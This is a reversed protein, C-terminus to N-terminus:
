LTITYTFSLDSFRGFGDRLERSSPFVDLAPKDHSAFFDDIVVVSWEIGRLYCNDAASRNRFCNVSMLYVQYEGM